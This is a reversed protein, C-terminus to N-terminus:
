KIVAFKYHLWEKEINREDLTSRGEDDIISVSMHKLTNKNDNMDLAVKNQEITFVNHKSVTDFNTIGCIKVM